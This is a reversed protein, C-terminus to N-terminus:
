IEKTWIQKFFIMRNHRFSTQFEVKFVIEAKSKVIPPQAGILRLKCGVHMTKDVVIGIIYIVDSWM